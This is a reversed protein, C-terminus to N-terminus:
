KITYGLSIIRYKMALASVFFKNALEGINRVEEEDIYKRVTKEPMLLKSAFENANYEMSNLTENRFFVADRFGSNKDKHLLYHGLEHALTFRQRKRNHDQNIRIIWSGDKSFLEGSMGAEMPAYEIKIDKFKGKIIAELDIVDGEYLNNDRAYQIIDDIGILLPPEKYM